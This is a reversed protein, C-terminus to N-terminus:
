VLTTSWSSTTLAPFKSLPAVHIAPAEMSLRSWLKRVLEDTQDREDGGNVVTRNKIRLDHSM